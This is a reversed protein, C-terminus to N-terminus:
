FSVRLSFTLLRMQTDAEIDTIRGANGGCDICTNGQNANFGMVPHNFINNADMRFEAKFRETIRFDKALSLDATFLHPGTFSDFGRNGLTGCAPRSFGGVTPRAQTCENPM